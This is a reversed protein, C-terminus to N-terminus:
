FYRQGMPGIQPEHWYSLWAIRGRDCCCRTGGPDFHQRGEEGSNAAKSAHDPCWSQSTQGFADELILKHLLCALESTKLRAIETDIQLGRNVDNVLGRLAHFEMRVKKNLEHQSRLDEPTHGPHRREAQAQLAFFPKIFPSERYTKETMARLLELQNPYRHM